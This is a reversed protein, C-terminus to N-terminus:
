EQELADETKIINIKNLGVFYKRYYTTLYGMLQLIILRGETLYANVKEQSAGEFKRKLSTTHIDMLDRPEAELVGLQEAFIRLQEGLSHNVKFMQEELALDLLNSYRELIEKFIDPVSSSLSRLGYASETLTTSNGISMQELEYMDRQNQEDQIMKFKQQREFATRMAYVLLNTDLTAKHLYGYAGMDLTKVAVIEDELCTQVLVPISNYAQKIRLLSSLNRSDPLMLDLIIIDIVINSLLKLGNALTDAYHVAFGKHFFTSHVNSLLNIFRETDDLDDEILLVQCCRDFM